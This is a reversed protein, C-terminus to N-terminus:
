SIIPSIKSNEEFHLLLFLQLSSLPALYLQLPFSLGSWVVGQLGECLFCIVWFPKLCSYKALLWFHIPFPFYQAQFVKPYSTIFPEIVSSATSIPLPYIQSIVQLSFSPSNRITLSLSDLFVALTWSTNNIKSDDAYLYYMVGSSNILSIFSSLAGLESGWLVM